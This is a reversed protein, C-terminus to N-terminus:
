VELGCVFATWTHNSNITISFYVTPAEGPHVQRLQCLQIVNDSCCASASVVWGLTVILTNFQVALVMLLLGYPLEGYSQIQTRLVGLPVLQAPLSVTCELSSRSEKAHKRQSNKRAESLSFKRPM